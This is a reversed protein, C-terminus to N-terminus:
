IRDFVLPFGYIRTRDLKLRQRLERNRVSCDLRDATLQFYLEVLEAQRHYYEEENDLLESLRRTGM